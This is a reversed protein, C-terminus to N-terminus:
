EKEYEAIVERDLQKKEDEAETLKAMADKLNKEAQMADKGCDASELIENMWFLCRSYCKHLKDEVIMRQTRIGARKAAAKEETSARKDIYKKIYYLLFASFLGSSFVAPIIQALAEEFTM